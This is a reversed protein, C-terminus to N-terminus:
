AYSHYSSCRGPQEHQRGDPPTLTPNLATVRNSSRDILISGAPRTPSLMLAHDVVDDVLRGLPETPPFASGSPVHTSKTVSSSPPMQRRQRPKPQSHRDHKIAPLLVNQPLDRGIIATRRRSGAPKGLIEDVVGAELGHRKTLHNRYHEPRGWKFDCHLCSSPHHKTRYHRMFGQMQSYEEGCIMCAYLKKPAKRAGTPRRSSWSSGTVCNKATQLSRTHLNRPIGEEHQGVTSISPMGLLTSPASFNGIPGTDVHTYLHNQDLSGSGHQSSNHTTDVEPVKTYASDGIGEHGPVTSKVIMIFLDSLLTRASQFIERVPLPSHGYYSNWAEDM